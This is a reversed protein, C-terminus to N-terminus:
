NSVRFVYLSHDLMEPPGYRLLWRYGGPDKLFQGSLSTASVIVTGTVRENEGLPHAKIGYVAPDVSGFYALWIQEAPHDREYQRVALLGQGWDLNSDTLLRYSEAPRVFINFYSLYGPAYRLADAANVAVLLVLLVMAARKERAREWVAGAFLLAFPYVALIHREGLDFRSFVALLLYLAPFSSIIWLDNLLLDNPVLDNSVRLRRSGALALGALCLILVVTPWKLLIVVPYYSKWGGAQTLKGLFFAPMGHRNHRVVTRFGELYEGAPVLVSFNLRSRVGTYTIDPRNPFTTILQGNRQTLRSVHFFYGAWVVLVAVVAAAFMKGWNWRRPNAVVGEQKLVLMWGIAVVFMVPASFKALLMLGLLLGLHATHLASPNKRWKVLQAAAAFILLAAVGDTTAVSFHAIMSPSFCFLGLALNAAGESFLRRATTWLVCGLILGLILNMSRARQALPEPAPEMRTARWAEPLREVDIQWQEALLPLTCWLRALPTHDNWQEFRNNRWADLGGAIDVPEDFTVSQTRIFWACQALYALLLFGPLFWRLGRRRKSSARM